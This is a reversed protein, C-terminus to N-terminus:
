APHLHLRGPVKQLQQRLLRRPSHKPPTRLIRQASTRTRCSSATGSGRAKEQGGCQTTPSPRGETRAGPGWKSSGVLVQGGEARGQMHVLPDQFTAGSRPKEWVPGPKATRVPARTPVVQGARGRSEKEPWSGPLGMGAKVSRLSYKGAAVCRSQSGERPNDKLANILSSFM